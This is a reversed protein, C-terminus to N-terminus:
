GTDIFPIMPKNHSTLTLNNTIIYTCNFLGICAKSYTNYTTLPINNNTNIVPTYTPQIYTITPLYQLYKVRVKPVKSNNFHITLSTHKRIGKTILQQNRILQYRQELPLNEFEKLEKYNKFPKQAVTKYMYALWNTLSQIVQNDHRNNSTIVLQEDSKYKTFEQVKITYKSPLKTGIVQELEKAPVKRNTLLLAHNHLLISNFNDRFAHETSTNSIQITLEKTSRYYKKNIASFNNTVVRNFKSYEDKVVKSNSLKTNSLKTNSGKDVLLKYIYIYRTDVPISSLLKDTDKTARDLAKAYAYTVSNYLQNYQNYIDSPLNNSNLALIQVPTLNENEVQALTRFTAMKQEQRIQYTM